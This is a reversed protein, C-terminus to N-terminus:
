TRLSCYLNSAGQSDYIYMAQEEGYFALPIGPMILNTVLQGLLFKQTGNTLSPWRFVDQNSTGYLHRPDILGTDHNLFDDSFVLAM